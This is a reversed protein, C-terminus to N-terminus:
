TSQLLGVWNPQPGAVPEKEMEKERLGKVLEVGMEALGEKADKKTKWREDRSITENGIQLWGGFDSQDGEIEYKPVIGRM